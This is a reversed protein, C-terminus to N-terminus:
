EPPSASVPTSPLECRTLRRPHAPDSIDFYRAYGWSTEVV